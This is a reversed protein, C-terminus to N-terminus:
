WMDEEMGNMLFRLGAGDYDRRVAVELIARSCWENERYLSGPM